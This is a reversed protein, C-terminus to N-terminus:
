ATENWFAHRWEGSGDFTRAQLWADGYAPTALLEWRAMSELRTDSLVRAIDAQRFFGPAVDFRLVLFTRHAAVVDFRFPAALRTSDLVVWPLYPLPYCARLGPRAELLHGLLERQLLLPDALLPADIQATTFRLPMPEINAACRVVNM